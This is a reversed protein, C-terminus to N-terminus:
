ALVVLSLPRLLVFPLWRELHLMILICRTRLFLLADLGQVRREALIHLRPRLTAVRLGDPLLRRLRELICWNALLGEHSEVIALRSVLPLQVGHHARLLPDGREVLVAVTKAHSCKAIFVIPCRLIIRAEEAFSTENSAARLYILKISENLM